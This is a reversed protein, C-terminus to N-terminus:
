PNLPLTTLGESSEVAADYLALNPYVLKRCFLGVAPSLGACALFSDMSSIFWLLICAAFFTMGALKWCGRASWGTKRAIAACLISWAFCAVTLLPLRELRHLLDPTVRPWLLVTLAGASVFLLISIALSRTLWRCFALM